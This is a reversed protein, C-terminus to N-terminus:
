PPVIDLVAIEPRCLFRVRPASDGALGLGRNVYLTTGGVQYRGAEFRKGLMSLTILAGYFPLRVQGGHTHGALYLDLGAKDAKYVLTSYHFLFIDYASTPGLEKRFRKFYPEDGVAMGSVRVRTGRINLERAEKNLWTVPLGEFADEPLFGLDMNGKVLYVGFSSKLDGLMKRVLPVAEEDNIFDGTILILDPELKNVIEVTREENLAKAESHLDSIHVLRIRETEPRIKDSTLVLKTVEINTPEILFGYIICGLGCVFAAALGRSLWREARVGGVPWFRPRPEKKRYLLEFVLLRVGGYLVFVVTFLFGFIVSIESPTAHDQVAM